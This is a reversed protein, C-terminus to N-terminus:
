SPARCWPPRRSRRTRAPPLCRVAPLCCARSPLPCRRRPPSSTFASSKWVKAPLYYMSQLRRAHRIIFVSERGMMPKYSGRPEPLNPWACLAIYREMFPSLLECFFGLARGGGMGMGLLREESGVGLEGGSTGVSIMASSLTGGRRGGDMRSPRDLMEPGNGLPLCDERVPGRRRAMVFLREGAPLARTTNWLEVLLLLGM